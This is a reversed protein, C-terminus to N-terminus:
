WVISTAELCDPQRGGGGEGGRVDLTECMVNDDHCGSLAATRNHDQLTGHARQQQASGRSMHVISRDM